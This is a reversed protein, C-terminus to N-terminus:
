FSVKVVISNFITNDNGIKTPHDIVDRTTYSVTPNIITSMNFWVDVVYFIGVDVYKFKKTIGWRGELCSTFADKSSNVATGFNSPSGTFPLSANTFHQYGGLNTRRYYMSGIVSSDLVYSNIDYKGELGMRLGVLNDSLDEYTYTTSPNSDDVDIGNTQISSNQDFYAYGLGVIGNVEVQGRNLLLRSYDLNVRQNTAQYKFTIDALPVRRVPWGEWKQQKSHLDPVAM